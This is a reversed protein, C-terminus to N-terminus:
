FRVILNFFVHSFFKLKISVLIFLKLSQNTILFSSTTILQKESNGKRWYTLLIYIGYLFFNFFNSIYRYSLFRFNKKKKECKEVVKFSGYYGKGIDIIIIM